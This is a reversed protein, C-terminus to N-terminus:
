KRSGKQSADGASGNVVAQGGEVKVQQVNIHKIVFTQKNGNRLKQMTLMGGQYVTMLRAAATVCRTAEPVPVGHQFGQQMMKMAGRHAAALQHTLSKTLSDKAGVTAAADVASKLVGVGRALQLRESAAGVSIMNPDELTDALSLDADDV